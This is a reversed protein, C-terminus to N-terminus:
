KNGNNKSVPFKKILKPGDLEDQLNLKPEETPEEQGYITDPNFTMTNKAQMTQESTEKKSNKESFNSELNIKNEHLQVETLSIDKIQNKILSKIKEQEEYAGEITKYMEELANEGLKLNFIDFVKKYKKNRKIMYVSTAVAGIIFPTFVTSFTTFLSIYTLTDKIMMLPLVTLSTAFLGIMMAAIMIDLGNQINSRIRWFYNHLVKQTTLIDLKDYQQKIINSLENVKRKAEEKTQPLNKDKLDYRSSIKDIMEQNTELLKITESISKNRNNVKELEIQYHVEEELKEIKTKATSFAKYREKTKYKKNILSNILAGIGFSSGAMIAPYSLASIVNTFSIVGINKILLSSVFLIPLYGIISFGLTSILKNEFSNVKSMRVREDYLCIKKNNEKKQIELEEKTRQLDELKM